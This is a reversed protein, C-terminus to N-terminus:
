RPFILYRAQRYALVYQKLSAAIFEARFNVRLGDRLM